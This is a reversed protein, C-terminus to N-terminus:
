KAIPQEEGKITYSIIEVDSDPDSRQTVRNPERTTSRTRPRRQVKHSHTYMHIKEKLRTNQVAHQGRAAQLQAGRTDQRREMKFTIGVALRTAEERLAHVLDPEEQERELARAHM